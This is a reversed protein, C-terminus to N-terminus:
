NHLVLSTTVTRSIVRGGEGRAQLTLKLRLLDGIRQVSFGREDVLGNGNDDLGNATEGELRAAVGHCVVTSKESATGVNRTLVLRREDVLGDGDDDVGNDIEGQDMVLALRIPLSWTIVGTASVSAPTEFTITDTGFSTVPDPALSHLGVATLERAARQMARDARRELDSRIQIAHAADQGRMQFMGVASLLLALVTISICLEIVTFAARRQNSPNRAL